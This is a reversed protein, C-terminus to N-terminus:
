PLVVRYNMVGVPVYFTLVRAGISARYWFGTRIVGMAVGDIGQENLSYMLGAGVYAGCVSSGAVNCSELIVTEGNTGTRLELIVAGVSTGNRDCIGAACFTLLPPEATPTATPTQTRTPSITPTNTRTATSTPTASPQPTLTPANVIIQAYPTGNATLDVPLSDGAILTIRPNVARPAVPSACSVIFLIAFLALTKKM